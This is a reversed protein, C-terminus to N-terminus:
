YKNNYIAQEPNKCLTAKNPDKLIWMCIQVMKIPTLKVAVNYDRDVGDGKVYRHGSFVSTIRREFNRASMNKINDISSKGDLLPVKSYIGSGSSGRSADCYNYYLEASEDNIKCFRFRMVSPNEYDFNSFYLRNIPMNQKSPAVGIKMIRFKKDKATPSYNGLPRRMTLIAYDYEIETERAGGTMKWNEPFHVRKVHKWKFYRNSQPSRGSRSGGTRPRGVRLKKAGKVYSNGDHICHAATLVNFSDIIIGSCGTSLKFVTTFPYKLQRTEIINFRTDYNFIERKSRSTSMTAIKDEIAELNKYTHKMEDMNLNSNDFKLMTSRTTRSLVDLTEYSLDQVDILSRKEHCNQDCKEHKNYNKVRGSYSPADRTARSFTPFIHQRLEEEYSIKARQNTESTPNKIHLEDQLQDVINASSKGASVV